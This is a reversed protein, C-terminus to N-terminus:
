IPTNPSGYYTNIIYCYSDDSTVVVGILDIKRVAQYYHLMGLAQVDDDDSDFDTDLIVKTQASCLNFVGFM